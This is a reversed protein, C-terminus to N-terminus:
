TTHVSVYWINGHMELTLDVATDVTYLGRANRNSAAIASYSFVTETIGRVTIM